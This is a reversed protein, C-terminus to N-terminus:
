PQLLQRMQTQLVQKEVELAQTAVSHRDADARAAAQEMGQLAEKELCRVQLFAFILRKEFEAPTETLRSLIGEFETLTVAM